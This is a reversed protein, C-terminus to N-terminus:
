RKAVRKAFYYFSIMRRLFPWWRLHSFLLAAKIHLGISTKWMGDLPLQQTIDLLVRDPMNGAVALTLAAWRCTIRSNQLADAFFDRDRGAFFKKLTMHSQIIEYVCHEKGAWNAHSTPGKYYSYLTKPVHVIRHCFYLMRPTTAYDEGFNLGPIPLAEPRTACERRIMIGWISSGSQKSILAAVHKGVDAAVTRQYQRTYDTYVYEFDCVAADADNKRVAEYMLKVADTHLYDDSDVHMIYKGRAHQLGTLRAAALGRNTEHRLKVIRGAREPHRAAVREMIEMSEDPSADDVFIYEVDDFTQSFLSEACRGILAAVKFVPVIITVAPTETDNM